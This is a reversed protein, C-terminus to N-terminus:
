RCVNLIAKEAPHSELYNRLWGCGKQMLIPLSPASRVDVFGKDGALAIQQSNPSFAIGWIAGSPNQFEAIQHGQFDWLRATGDMGGTAILQGDPSIVLKNIGSQYSFFERLQKGSSDLIKVYSSKDATVIRSGDRTIALGWIQTQHVKKWKSIQKGALDWIAINGEWDATVIRQGDATFVVRSIVGEQEPTVAVLEGNPSKPKWIRMTKDYSGTAILQSDPSVAVSAINGQHGDQSGEMGKLKAQPETLSGSLNWVRAISFLGGAVIFKGNPSFGIDQVNHNQYIAEKWVKLEKGSADWLRMVGENGAGAIAKGDPSFAIANVDDQFGALELRQVPKDALNWLRVFEDRGTSVLRKGDPSFSASWVVGRHGVFEQLKQGKIDWLKVSGDDSGTAVTQGDPSFNIVTVPYQHGELRTVEQGNVTWIRARNDDSATAVLKGDPSFSVGLMKHIKANKLEALKNGSVSWVRALGDKGATALKQGDRSFSIATVDSGHAVWTKLQKGSREWLYVVGNRQGGVIKQGDTSVSIASFSRKDKGGQPILQRIQKGSREWLRVTGDEGASAILPNQADSSVSVANVGGLVGGEHGVLSAEKIGALNWIQLTDKKGEKGEGATVFRDSGPMFVASRIEGQKADFYNQEHIKDLTKQLALVPSVAPYDKIERGNGILNQLEQTSQMVSVLSSLEGSKFQFLANVGAQELKIAVQAIQTERFKQLAYISTLTIFIISSISSVLLRKKVTSNADNLTQNAQALIQAEKEKANLAAQTQLKEQDQREKEAKEQERFVLSAQIFKQEAQGLDDPRQKVWKEAEELLFGRLLAAENQNNAQWQRANTRVRDQWTRFPRNDDEEMWNCLSQWERILAEHVVEVTEMGTSKDQGTAVLRANALKVVLKWNDEYGRVEDRTALRRTDEAGEGPHVLQLFICKAQKQEPKSLNKYFEEAYKGIAQKVGGINSYAEHTLLNNSQQKWLQTLAFELLALNGPEDGVDNLIRDTLGDALSVGTGHLPKEIAEQLQERTMRHLELRSQQLVDTLPPYASARCFFDARITLVITLGTGYNIAEILIKLFCDREQEGCLTYLEEFQDVILLLEHSPHKELIGTIYTCFRLPEKRLVAAIQAAKDIQTQEDAGEDGLQRRLAFALKDIPKSKPSFSDILWRGEAKLCPVLRAFVVSSKGSGSLGTVTVLPQKQVANFLEQAFNERGFFYDRDKEQFASM